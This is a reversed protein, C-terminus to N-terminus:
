LHSRSGGPEALRRHLTAKARVPLAHAALEQARTHLSGAVVQARGSVLAEYAQRAVFAPDEKRSRGLRTSLLGSRVFFRTHPPGPMLVTVTVGSGRLETRLALGFSRLFTTSANYVAHYPGPVQTAVSSTILLRGEGQAVLDELLRRCLHVTATINLDIVRTLGALDADLFAGGHGIGANLVVTRVPRRLARAQRVLTEAGAYTALDTQVARVEVGHVELRAAADEISHEEAAIVLDHGHVAAETALEFGIGSSAGTVVALPRLANM